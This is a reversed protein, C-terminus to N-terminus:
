DAIMRPDTVGNFLGQAFPYLPNGYYVLNTALHPLLVAFAAAGMLVCSAGIARPTPADADGPRRRQQRQRQRQIVLWIGRALVALAIPVLMYIAQLKTALAAGALAGLLISPGRDFRRLARGLLPLLPAAFLAVFHDAAGGINHNYVYL